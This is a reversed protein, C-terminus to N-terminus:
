DVILLHRSKYVKNKLHSIGKVVLNIQMRGEIKELCIVLLTQRRSPLKRLSSFLIYLIFLCRFPM